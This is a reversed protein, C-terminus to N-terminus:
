EIDLDILLKNWVDLLDYGENTEISIVDNEKYLIIEKKNPSISVSKILSVKIIHNPGLTIFDKM